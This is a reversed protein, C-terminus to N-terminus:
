IYYEIEGSKVSKLERAINAVVTKQEDLNNIVVANAGIKTNDGIKINGLIKAGAGIIVNNGITPHRKTSKNNRGGLTVGQYIVVNDGVIATSGIVVGIGHDIFCIKGIVASPHIEIGTLFRSIHAVLRPLIPVKCKHLYWAIRHFFIAHVGPYCLIIELYSTSAPDKEKINKLFEIM